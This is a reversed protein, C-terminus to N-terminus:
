RSTIGSMLIWIYTMSNKQDMTMVFTVGTRISSPTATPNSFRCFSM